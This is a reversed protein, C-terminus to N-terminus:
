RFMAWKTDRLQMQYYNNGTIVMKWVKENNNYKHYSDTILIKINSNCLTVASQFAWIVM